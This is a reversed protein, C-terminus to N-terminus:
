QGPQDPPPPNKKTAKQLEDNVRRLADVLDAHVKSGVDGSRWRDGLDKMDDKITKATNSNSFDKAAQSLTSGLSAMGEEIEQQLKRREDSAWATQMADRLNKGLENLQDSISDGSPKKDNPNNEVMSDEKICLHRM